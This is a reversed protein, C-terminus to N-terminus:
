AAPWAELYSSLPRWMLYVVRDFRRGLEGLLGDLRRAQPITRPFGDMVFGKQSDGQQLRQPHHRDHHQGARLGGAAM